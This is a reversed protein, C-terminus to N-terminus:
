NNPSLIIEQSRPFPFKGGRVMKMGEVCAYGVQKVRLM